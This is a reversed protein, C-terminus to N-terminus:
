NGEWRKEWELLDKVTDVVSEEVSRYKWEKGFVEFSRGTDWGTPDVGDPLIKEPNGEIIRDHLEPFHKRIINIVLQPTIQESVLIIRKNSAAPTTLSLIHALAM